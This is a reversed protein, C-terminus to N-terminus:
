FTKWVKGSKFSGGCGSCFEHPCQTCQFHISGGRALDYRMHCAPCEPPNLIPTVIHYKPFKGLKKVFTPICNLGLSHIVNIICMSLPTSIMKLTTHPWKLTHTFMYCTPFPPAHGELFNLHESTAESAM